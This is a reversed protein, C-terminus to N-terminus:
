KLEQIKKELIEPSAGSFEHVKAGSKYFQFTPMSKIGCSEAVDSADDVDVKVFVVNSYKKSLEEFVPAIRKCPGCWVATFDVVVLSEKAEELLAKFEELNEIHKVM